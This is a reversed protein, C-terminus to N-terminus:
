APLARLGTPLNSNQCAACLGHNSVENAYDVNVSGEEDINCLWHLDVPDCGERIDSGCMPLVLRRLQKLATLHLRDARSVESPQRV